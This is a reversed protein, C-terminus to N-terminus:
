QSKVYKNVTSLVIEGDVPKSIFDTSGCIKARFRDILGDNGTLIVIPIERFSSLKRLQSCIEYGNTHPMVLDLFIFNPKRNLLIAIARMADSIGLFQYGAGNIIKEMTQCTLPSDDICAVLIKGVNNKLSPVNKNITTTKFPSPLDPVEILQVLGLQIYPLLSRTVTLVDRKMRVALDRLTQEGDLLQTLNKYVQVSTRQKLQEPQKIIPAMEPSRDAIKASQWAQWLREAELIVQESEILAMRTSLLNDEKFECSVDMARTLDFLVEVVAARIISNAQQRTIKAIDVWHCMLHYDWCTRIEDAVIKSIDTQLNNLDGLMHPAFDALNRRWRRVPHSGGTAYMIRGLYLFFVWNINKRRDILVMQGSFRRKKLSEFLQIQQHITLQNISIPSSPSMDKATTM